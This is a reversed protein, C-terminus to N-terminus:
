LVTIITYAKRMKVSRTLVALRKNGFYTFLISSTSAVSLTRKLCHMLHIPPM